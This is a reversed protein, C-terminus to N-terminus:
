PTLCKTENCIVWLWSKLQVNISMILMRERIKQIKTSFMELTPSWIIVKSGSESKVQKDYNRVHVKYKSSEDIEVHYFNTFSYNFIVFTLRGWIVKQVCTLLKLECSKDQMKSSIKQFIPHLLNMATSGASIYKSLILKRDWFDPIIFCNSNFFIDSRTVRKCM